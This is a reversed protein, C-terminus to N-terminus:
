SWKPWATGCTGGTGAQVAGPVAHRAAKAYAGSGVRCIIQAGPHDRLWADAVDATRGALM